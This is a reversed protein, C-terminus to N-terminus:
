NDYKKPNVLKMEVALPLSHYESYSVFVYGNKPPEHSVKRLNVLNASMQRCSLEPTLNIHQIGNKHIKM